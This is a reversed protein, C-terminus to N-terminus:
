YRSTRKPSKRVPPVYYPDTKTVGTASYLIGYFLSLLGFAIVIFAATLALDLYYFRMSPPIVEALWPALRVVPSLDVWGRMEAPIKVWGAQYNARAVLYAASYSIVPIIVLMLCGIGRWIPHIKWRRDKLPRVRYKEYKSM